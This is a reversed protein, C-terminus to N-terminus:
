VALPILIVAAKSDPSSSALKVYKLDISLVTGKFGGVTIIDGRQFPRLILISVGAFTDTLLDKAAFGVTLASISLLSLIPKIDVGTTGLTSLLINIWVLYACIKSSIRLIDPDQTILSFLREFLPEFIKISRWTYWKSKSQQQSSPDIKGEMFTGSEDNAGITATSNKFQIDSSYDTTIRQNNNIPTSRDHKDDNNNVIHLTNGGRIRHPLFSTTLGYLIKINIFIVVILCSYGKKIILM